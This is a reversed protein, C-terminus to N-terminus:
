GEAQLQPNRKAICGSYDGCHSDCFLDDVWPCGGKARRAKIQAPTSGFIFEFVEDTMGTVTGSGSMIETVRDDVPDPM